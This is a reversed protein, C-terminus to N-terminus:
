SAAADLAGAAGTGVGWGSRISVVAGVSRIAYGAKVKIDVEASVIRILPVADSLPPTASTLQVADPPLDPTAAPDVAHVVGSKGSREPSLRTM